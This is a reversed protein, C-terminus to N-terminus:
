AVDISGDAGITVDHAEVAFSVEGDDGALVERIDDADVYEALEELDDADLDTAAAVAERVATDAPTPTVWEEDDGERMLYVEGEESSM